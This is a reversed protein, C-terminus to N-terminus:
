VHQASELRNYSLAAKSPSGLSHTQCRGGYTQLHLPKVGHKPSVNKVLVSAPFTKRILTLPEKLM